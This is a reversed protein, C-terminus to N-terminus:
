IEDWPLTDVRTRRAHAANVPHDEVQASALDLGHDSFLARVSERSFFDDFVEKSPCTDILLLGESTKFGVHLVNNSEPVSALLALYGRELEDPDGTFRWIYGHM